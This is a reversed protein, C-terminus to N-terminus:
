LAATAHLHLYCFARADLQKLDSLGYHPELAIPPTLPKIDYKSNRNEGSGPSPRRPAEVKNRVSCSSLGLNCGEQRSHKALAGGFCSNIGPQALKPAPLFRASSGLKVPSQTCRRQPGRDRLPPSHTSQPRQLRSTWSQTKKPFIEASFLAHSTATM